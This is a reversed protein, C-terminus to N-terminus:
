NHNFLNFHIHNFMKENDRWNEGQKGKIRNDFALRKTLISLDDRSMGTSLEVPSPEVM